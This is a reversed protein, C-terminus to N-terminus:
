HPFAGIMGILLMVGGIALKGVMGMLRGKFAGAGVRVSQKFDRRVWLEIIGAGLAAGLCVGIITGVIPIPILVTLFIAGLLAGVVAGIMARKSAGAAKAGASSALLEVVEAVTALVALAAFTPWGVYVNWGTFYGYLGYIVVMLWLGPLTLLNIALGCLLGLLLILYYVWIM